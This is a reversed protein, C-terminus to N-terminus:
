SNPPEPSLREPIRAGNIVFDATKELFDDDLDRGLMLLRFYLPGSTAQLLFDPDAGAPLEGREVARVFITRSLELRVSWITDLVERVDDKVATRQGVEQMLRAVGPQHLVERIDRLHALLDERLSGTDPPPAVESQREILATSVLGAKDRWRRYITTKNVGAREAVAEIRLARYGCEGLEAITADIVAQGVRATRGGPRVTASDARMHAFQHKLPETTM